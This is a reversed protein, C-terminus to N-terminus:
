SALARGVARAERGIQRLLGALEVTIGVFHLGPLGSATRAGHVTPMGRDDLVGLHGVMEDLGPRFGTASIVAEPILSSGNALHVEAGDFHDVASVIRIRGARIDSVFGHDLIPVTRTRLFQTFGDGSPAPLGDDSLDPVSLRRLVGSLPNMLREPVRALAIGLLQSPVGLTSRRVINPPTRVALSVRAGATAIDHAIESASNGAGVVLVHKGRYGAPTRYDTSHIFSGTFEARGPWDPLYPVRSFGTAVVVAAATRPGSSTQIRWGRSVQDIRQVAVGFEPQVGARRAYDRLYRVFDDRAVWRGYSRPIRSGPIGSLWRVTHLHLADYRSQWAAGVDASRELVVCPVNRERLTAAVALGAAGAGIIVVDGM